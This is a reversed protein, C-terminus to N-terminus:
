CIKKVSIVFVLIMERILDFLVTEGNANDIGNLDFGKWIMCELTALTLENTGKDTFLVKKFM